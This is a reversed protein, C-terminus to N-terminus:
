LFLGAIRCIGGPLKGAWDTIHSLYGIEDGMLKEVVKAYELWKGFAERTLALYPRSLTQEKAPFSEMISKIGERYKFILAQDIPPEDLTRDGINSKPMAYFFRGLLGRGRFTKNKSIQKMILPQATLGMTLLAQKMFIPPRSRRDVRVSSGSYAQLFLDINARGDSYLGSM